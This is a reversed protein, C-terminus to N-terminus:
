EPSWVDNERILSGNYFAISARENQEDWATQRATMFGVGRPLMTIVARIVMKYGLCGEGNATLIVLGLNPMIVADFGEPLPEPTCTDGDFAACHYIEGNSFGFKVDLTEREVAFPDKTVVVGKLQGRWLTGEISFDNASAQSFFGFCTILLCVITILTIKKM